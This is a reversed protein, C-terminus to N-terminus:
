ASTHTRGDAGNLAADGEYELRYGYGYIPEDIEGTIIVGTPFLHTSKMVQVARRAQNKTLHDLRAVLVVVDSGQALLMADANALVPPTDLVVVDYDYSAQKLFKQMSGSSLLVTPDFFRTSDALVHLSGGRAQELEPLAIVRVADALDVEDALVQVLGVPGRSSSALKSLRSSGVRNAVTPPARLIQKDSPRPEKKDLPSTFYEHLTPNHLDASVALVRRGTVSLAHALNATVTSKGEEATASTIVIVKSEGEEDNLSLLTLNTRITRYADALPGSGSFDALASSRSSRRRSKTFPVVGLTPARYIAELQEIDRIRRDLRDRFAGLMVGLVLGALIGIAGDRTPHPAVPAVPIIAPSLVALSPASVALSARAQALELRLESAAALSSADTRGAFVQLEHSLTNIQTQISAKEGTASYSIMASSVENAIKTAKAPSGLNVSVTILDANPDASIVLAGQLESLTMGYRSAVPTLVASSTGVGALTTIARTPDESSSGASYLLTSASEYQKAQRSTVAYTAGGTVVTVVAILVAHRKLLSFFERLDSHENAATENTPVHM